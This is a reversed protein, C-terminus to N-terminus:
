KRCTSSNGVVLKKFTMFAINNMLIGLYQNCVYPLLLVYFEKKTIQKHGELPFFLVVLAGLNLGLFM